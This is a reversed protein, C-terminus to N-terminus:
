TDPDNALFPGHLVTEGNAMTVHLRWWFLRHRCDGSLVIEIGDQREAVSMEVHTPASDRWSALVVRGAIAAARADIFREEADLRTVKLSPIHGHEVEVRAVTTGTNASGLHLVDFGGHPAGTLALSGFKLCDVTLQIV